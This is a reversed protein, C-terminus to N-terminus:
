WRPGVFAIFASDIANRLTIEAASLLPYLEGGQTQNWIYIGAMERDTM